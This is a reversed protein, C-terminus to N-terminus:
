ECRERERLRRWSEGPGRVRREREWSCWWVHWWPRMDADGEWCSGCRGERGGRLRYADGPGLVRWRREQEEPRWWMCWRREMDADGEGWSRCRAEPERRWRYVDQVCLGRWCRELVELKSGEGGRAGAWRVQHDAGARCSSQRQTFHAPPAPLRSPTCM